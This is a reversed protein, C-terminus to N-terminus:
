FALVSRVLYNYQSNYEYYSKKVVAVRTAYRWDGKYQFSWIEVCLARALGDSSDPFDESSTWYRNRINLMDGMDSKKCRFDEMVRVMQYYSPLFWGTSNNVPTKYKKEYEVVAFYTAPYGTDQTDNLNNVGGAGETIIKQTFSYGNWDTNINTYTSYCGLNKGVVGWKCGDSADQLAVVYGHCKAQGICSHYHYDSKDTLAYGVFFVIGIVKEKEEDTLTADKPLLHGDTLYYDGVQLLHEKTTVTAENVVYHRRNGASINALAAFEDKKEYPYPRGIITTTTSGAPKVICRYTGDTGCRWPKVDSGTYDVPDVVYDSISVATNTFRYVTKPVDIVALAMRHTMTFTLHLKHNATNKTASGKATMLDSATYKAYTNQDAAPQWGSILPAFFNADSSTSAANIKGTMDPQYPYYLFYTEGSYGGTLTVGEEPQWTLTGDKGATATLKVNDYAVNGGSRVIYLGCADGATFETTYGNEVARTDSKGTGDSAYGGDTVSIRLPQAGSDDPVDPFKEQSCGAMLLTAAMGFTILFTQKLTM